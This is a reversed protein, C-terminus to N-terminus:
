SEVESGVPQPEAPEEAGENAAKRAKSTALFEECANAELSLLHAFLNRSPILWIGRQAGRRSKRYIAKVAPRFENRASPAVCEFM